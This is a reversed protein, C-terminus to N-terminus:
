DITVPLVLRKMKLILLHKRLLCEDTKYNLASYEFFPMYSDLHHNYLIWQIHLMMKSLIFLLFKNFVPMHIYLHTEMQFMDQRIVKLVITQCCAVYM